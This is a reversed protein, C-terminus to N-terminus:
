KTEEKNNLHQCFIIAAEPDSFSTFAKSPGDYHLAKGLDIGRALHNKENTENDLFLYRREPGPLGSIFISWRPRKQTKGRIVDDLRDCLARLANCNRHLQRAMSWPYLWWFSPLSDPKIIHMPKYPRHSPDPM